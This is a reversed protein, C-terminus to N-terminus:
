KSSNRRFSRLYRSGTLGAFNEASDIDNKEDYKADAIKLLIGRACQSSAVEVVICNGAALAACLASLTGYVEARTRDPRIYVIGLGVKRHLSNQGHEIANAATLEAELNVSQYTSRLQGLALSYEFVAERRLIANDDQLAEVIAAGEAILSDHLRHFQHQRHRVSRPKGEICAATLQPFSQLPRNSKSTM